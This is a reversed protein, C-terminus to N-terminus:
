IHASAAGRFRGHAEDDIARALSAYLGKKAPADLAELRQRAAKASAPTGGPVLLEGLLWRGVAEGDGSGQAAQRMAVLPDVPAPTVGAGCAGLTVIAAGAAFMRTVTRSFSSLM